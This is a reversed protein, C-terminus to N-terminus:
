VTPLVLQTPEQPTGAHITITPQYRSTHDVPNGAGIVLVLRHGPQVVQAIDTLELRIHTPTGTPFPHSGHLDTVHLLDAAGFSILAAADNGTGADGLPPTCGDSPSDLLFANVIGGPQDSSVNLDLYPIGAILWPDSAPELTYVLRVTDSLPDTQQCLFAKPWLWGGPGLMPGSEGEPLPLSRYTRETSGATQSLSSGSLNFSRPVAEPPPWAASVHWEGDGQTPSVAPFATDEWIAKGLDTPEPGIGKLWFDFWTVMYDQFDGYLPHEHPPAHPWPGAWYQFPGGTFNAFVHAGEFYQDDYYGDTYILPATINHLHPDMDRAQWFEVPRDLGALDASLRTFAEFVDPCLRSSGAPDGTLAAIASELHTTDPEGLLRPATSFGTFAAALQAAVGTWVAGQPTTYLMLLDPVPAVAVAAKLHPPQQIAAELVTTGPYSGGHMGVRGNSWPQVGAWEVIEAQDKQERPGFFDLCGGSNGTGRVSMTMHAFGAQVWPNDQTSQDDESALYPSSTILVPAGVGAPLKPRLLYGDLAVGDSAMVVVHEIPLAEFPGALDAPWVSHDTPPYADAFPRASGDTPPAAPASCGALVFVALLVAATVPHRSPMPRALSPVPRPSM